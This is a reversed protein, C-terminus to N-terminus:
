YLDKLNEVLFSNSKGLSSGVSYAIIFYGLSPSKFLFRLPIGLILGRLLGIFMNNLTIDIVKRRLQLNQVQNEMKLYFEM